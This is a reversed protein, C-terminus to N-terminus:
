KNKALLLRCVLYQRSQLESTHEESRLESDPAWSGGRGGPTGPAPDLDDPSDDALGLVLEAEYAAAKAKLAQVHALETAKQERTLLSVPVRRFPSSREVLWGALAREVPSVHEAVASM